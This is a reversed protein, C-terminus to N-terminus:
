ARVAPRSASSRSAGRTAASPPSTAACGTAPRGEPRASRLQGLSWPRVGGLARPARPLRVRRPPLQLQGRGRARSASLNEGYGAPLSGSGTIFGGGHIWVMVPLREGAGARADLRQPLPLGREAVRSARRRRHASREPPLVAGFQTCARVGTWPRVAQPPRWRLAGVPPAAYPIGRFVRVVARTWGPSGAATSASSTRSHQRMRAAPAPSRSGAAAWSRRRWSRSSRWSSFPPSRCRQRRGRSGIQM